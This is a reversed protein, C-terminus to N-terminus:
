FSNAASIIEEKIKAPSSKRKPHDRFHSPGTGTANTTAACPATTAPYQNTKQTSFVFLKAPLVISTSASCFTM